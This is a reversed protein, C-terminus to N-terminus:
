KAQPHRHWKCKTAVAHFTGHKHRKWRPRSRDYAEAADAPLLTSLLISAILLLHKM